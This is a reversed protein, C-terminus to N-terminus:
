LDRMQHDILKGLGLIHPIPFMILPIVQAVSKEVGARIVHDDNGIGIFDDRPPRELYQTMDAPEHLEIHRHILIIQIQLRLRAPPGLRKRERPMQEVIHRIEIEGPGILVLYKRFETVLRQLEIFGSPM